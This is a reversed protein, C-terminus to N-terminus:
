LLSSGKWLAIATSAGGTRFEKKSAALLGAPFNMFADVETAM